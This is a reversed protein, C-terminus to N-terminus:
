VRMIAWRDQIWFSSFSDINYQKGYWQKEYWKVSSSIEPSVSSKFEHRSHQLGNKPRYFTGTQPCKCVQPVLNFDLM